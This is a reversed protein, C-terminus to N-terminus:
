LAYSSDLIEGVLYISGTVIVLKNKGAINKAHALALMSDKIEKVELRRDKGVEDLIKRLEHIDLARDSKPQTIIINSPNLKLLLRLMEGANKDSLVGFVFIIKRFNHKKRMAALEGALAEMGDGAEAIEFGDTTRVMTAIVRSPSPVRSCRAVPGVSRRARRGRLRHCRTRAGWRLNAPRM